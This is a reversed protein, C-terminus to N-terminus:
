RDDRGARGHRIRAAFQSAPHGQRSFQDRWRRFASGGPVRTEAAMDMIERVIGAALAFTEGHLDFTLVEIIGSKANLNQGDDQM